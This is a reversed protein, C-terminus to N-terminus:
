NSFFGNKSIGILSFYFIKNLILVKNYIFEMGTTAYVLNIGNM